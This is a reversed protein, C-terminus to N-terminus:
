KGGPRGRGDRLPELDLNLAKLGALFGARADREVTLLPHPKKCGFRDKVQMGEGKKGDKGDITERAAQARDNAELATRLIRLGAADNISYEELLDRWLRKSEKTLHGPARANQEFRM